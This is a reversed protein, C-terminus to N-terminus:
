YPSGNGLANWLYHTFTEGDACFGRKPDNSLGEDVRMATRILAENPYPWLPTATLTNYGVEGWFTGDTGYRYVINAGIDAGGHGADKLTSGEEIRLPYTLSHPPGDATPDITYCDATCAQEYYDSSWTGHVLANTLVDGADVWYGYRNSGVTQVITNRVENDSARAYIGDYSDVDAKYVTVNKIINQGVLRVIVGSRDPKFAVFNTVTHVPDLQVDGEDPELYMAAADSFFSGCGLWENLGYVLSSNHRAVIFDGYPSYTPRRLSDICFVNQFSVRRSNYPNCCYNPTASSSGDDQRLIVRRFVAKDVDYAQMLVKCKGWICCDEVLIYSTIGPYGSEGTGWLAGTQDGFFSCEKLFVYSAKLIGCSGFDIGRLKVYNVGVSTTGLRLKKDRHTVTGWGDVARVETMHDRDLGDPPQGNNAHPNTTISGTTSETYTGPLLGLSQGGSMESFAKNFTLFPASASLGDNSNSGSPSIYYNYGVIPQAV